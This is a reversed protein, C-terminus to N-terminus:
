NNADPKEDFEDEEGLALVEYDYTDPDCEDNIAITIDGFEEDQIVKAFQKGTLQLLALFTNIVESKTYVDDFLDFFSVEKKEKLTKVLFDLQRAVTYVDREIQKVPQDDIVRSFRILVKAYAEMLKDLNFGTISIRADEETYTPERYFRNLTETEKMKRAKESFMEHEIMLMRIEEEPDINEESDEEEEEEKPLAAKAKIELLTAAMLLFDTALDLDVKEIDEMYKLYQDTIQSIKVTHIDLNNIKTLHVLLEIPGQFEELYFTIDSSPHQDFLNNDM